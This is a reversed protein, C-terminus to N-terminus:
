VSVPYIAALARTVTDQLAGSNDIQMTEIGPPLAFDARALRTKIQKASERQRAHLRAELVAPSATLSLVTVQAFRAQALPLVSRSLNALVDQGRSVLDAVGAPIGYHLGHARWQLVFADQAVRRSFEAVSVSEFDEGGADAPRTIVRRVTSLAPERAAMAAM